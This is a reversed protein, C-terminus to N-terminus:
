KKGKKKKGKTNEENIESGSRKNRKGVETKRKRSRTNKPSGEISDSLEADSSLVEMEDEAIIDEEVIIDKEGESPEVRIEEDEQTDRRCSSEIPLHHKIINQILLKKNKDTERMISSCFLEAICETLKTILKVTHEELVKGIMAVINSEIQRQKDQMIKLETERKNETKNGILAGRYSRDNNVQSNMAHHVEATIMINERENQMKSQSVDILNNGQMERINNIAEAHKEGNAKRKEVERANSIFVCNKDNAKHPGRCLACRSTSSTCESKNHQEGCILCREKSRCSGAVHGIRQCHYCQVPTFVFPRVRYFSHGVKIGEPLKPGEFIVKVSESEIFENGSRKKMREVRVIQTNNETDTINELLQEMSVKISIPYVVGYKYRDKDPIYSTIEVNGMKKVKLLKEIVKTSKEELQMVILKRRKNIRIDKMKHKSFESNSIQKNIEIPNNILERAQEAAPKVILVTGENESELTNNSFFKSIEKTRDRKDVLNNIDQTSVIQNPSDLFDENQSGIINNYEPYSDEM